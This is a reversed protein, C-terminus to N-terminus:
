AFNQYRQLLAKIHNKQEYIGVGSGPCHNLYHLLDKQLSGVRRKLLSTLSPLKIGETLFVLYKINLISKEM